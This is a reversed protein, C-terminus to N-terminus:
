LMSNNKLLKSGNFVMMVEMFIILGFEGKGFSSLYM